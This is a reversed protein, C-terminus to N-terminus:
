AYVDTYLDEVPPEPSELAFTAAKAVRAKIEKDIAKLDEESAIKETLLRDKLQEIPDQETRVKKVEEKTGKSSCM